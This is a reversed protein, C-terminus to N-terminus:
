FGNLIFENGRKSKVSKEEVFNNKSGWLYCTPKGCVMLVKNSKKGDALRDMILCRPKKYCSNCNDKVFVDFESINQPIFYIDNM